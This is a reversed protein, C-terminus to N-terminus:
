HHKLVRFAYCYSSTNKKLDVGVVVGIVGDDTMTTIRLDLDTAAKKYTTVNQESTMATFNVNGFKEVLKSKQADPKQDM